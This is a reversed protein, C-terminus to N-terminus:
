RRKLVLSVGFAAFLLGALVACSDRALRLSRGNSTPAIVAALQLAGTKVERGSAVPVDISTGSRDSSALMIPAGIGVLKADLAHEAVRKRVATLDIPHRIALVGGTGGRQTAIPVAVTVTLQDGVHEIRADTGSIPAIEAAAAPVHFLPAETGNRLQFIELVEGDVPVFLHERKDNILDAMTAQDTEIAAVLRPTAAISEARLRAAKAELEITRVLEDGDSRLAAIELTRDAPAQVFSLAGAAIGLALAGALWLLRRSRWPAIPMASRSPVSSVETQKDPENLQVGPLSGTSRVIRSRPEVIIEGSQVVDDVAPNLARRRPRPPAAEGVGGQDAGFENPKSSKNSM